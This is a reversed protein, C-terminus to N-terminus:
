FFNHGGSTECWVDMADTDVYGQVRVGVLGVVSVGLARWRLEWQAGAVKARTARGGLEWRAQWGRLGAMARWTAHAARGGQQARGVTSAEARAHGAALAEAGMRGGCANAMWLRGNPARRM